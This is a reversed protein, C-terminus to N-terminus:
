SIERTQSNRRSILRGVQASVRRREPGHLVVLWCLAAYITAFGGCLWLLELPGVRDLRHVVLALAAAALATAAAPRVIPRLMDRRRLGLLRAGIPPLWLLQGIVLAISFGWAPASIVVADPLLKLLILVILPNALFTVVVMLTYQRVHGAGLLIRMWGDSLGRAMWGLALVQVLLAADPIIAAAEAPDAIRRGVWLELLPLALIAVVAAAPLTAMAHLRTSHYVLAGMAGPRQHSLRASVADLGDTVGMAVMRIYGSLQISLGFIANGAIGFTWNMFWQDVRDHMNAAVAVLTNWGSFGILRRLAQGDARAPRPLLLRDGAMMHVVFGLQVLLTIGGSFWGYLQVGASTSLPLLPLLLLAGGLNGARLGILSVNYLVMRESVLYMNMQPAFLVMCFVPLTRALLFWRAASELHAPIQFILPLLWWLLGFLLLLGLTAALSLLVAANYVGAFHARDGRHWAAGLHPTLIGRMVGQLLQSLGITVMILVTLGYGETGIAHILLPVALISIAFDLVLRGYNAAMRVVGRRAESAM